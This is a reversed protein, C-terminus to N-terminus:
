AIRIRDGVSVPRNSGTIVQSSRDVPGRVSVMENDSAIITVNVRVVVNQLGMVTSHQEMVLLFYGSNDSRLASIPVSFDYSARRLIIQTDVRQGTTWAGSPLTITITVRDNEDPESISSVIGTVTPVFFMSGGSTTVESESGVSIRESEARTIQMQAEFGGSTNRLTILPLNSTIDGNQRTFSVAGSYSAYMIGNNSILEDLTNLIAQKAAIDLQLTSANIINQATTDATQQLTHQHGQRANELSVRADEIRRAATQRNDDARNIATQLAAQARLVESNVSGAADEVRRAATLLNDTARDKANELADEARETESQKNNYFNRQAQELSIEADELRREATLLNDAARIQATELANEARELDSEATNNFSQQAQALSTEADEVRRSATLLNADATNQATAIANQAREMEAIAAAIEAPNSAIVANHYANIASWLAFEAAHISDLGQQRTTNYDDRARTLTRQANDIATRDVTSPRRSRLEDLYKQATAIDDQGQSLTSNYDDLARQHNRIATQLATDDVEILLLAEQAAAIDAQGQALTSYYDELARQHSRITSPLMDADIGYTSAILADLADRAEDIDTEGQRIAANYDEQARQLSREASEVSSTDINEGRELRELDLNMRNLNAEERIRREELDDIEFIAIADGIEINQGVNALMETITLGELATIDITDTPSVTANGSIASIIESREPTALVVRALTASSTGRAILTFVLLIALFKFINGASRRQEPDSKSVRAILSKIM